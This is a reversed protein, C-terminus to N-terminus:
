FGRFKVNVNTGVKSLRARWCRSVNSPCHITMEKLRISGTSMLISMVEELQEAALSLKVTHLRKFAKMLVGASIRSLEMGVINLDQLKLNPFSAIRECVCKIQNSNLDGDSEFTVLKCIADGLESPDGVQSPDIGDFQLTQLCLNVSYRIEQFLISLQSSTVDICSLNVYQLRCIANALLVQPINSFNEVSTLDLSHLKLRANQLIEECLATVQDASMATFGLSVSPIRCIARALLDKSVGPFDIVHFNLTKLKLDEDKTELITEFLPVIQEPTAQPRREGDAEIQVKYLKCMAHAFLYPPVQNLTVGYLNLSQLKLESADVIERCVRPLMTAVYQDRQHDRMPSISGNLSCGFHRIKCIAKALVGSPVGEIDEFEISKIINDTSNSIYECLEAVQEPSVIDHRLDVGELKMMATAFSVCSCSFFSNGGLELIKLPLKTSKAIRDIIHVTQGDSLWPFKSFCYIKFQCLQTIVAALDDPDTQGLVINNESIEIHGFNRRKWCVCVCSLIKGKLVHNAALYRFLKSMKGPQMQHLKVEGILRLRVSTLVVSVNEADVNIVFHKWYCSHSLIQYWDRCVLIANLVDTGVFEFIRQLALQPLYVHVSEGFM